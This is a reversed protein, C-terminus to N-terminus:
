RAANVIFGKGDGVIEVQEVDRLPISRIGPDLRHSPAGGTDAWLVWRPKVENLMQVDAQRPSIFVVGSGLTGSIARADGVLDIVTSGYRVKAGIAQTGDRNPARAEFSLTLNPELEIRTGMPVTMVQRANAQAAQTWEALMDSPEDEGDPQIATDVRLSQILRLSDGRTLDNRHPLILWEVTRDWLPMARGMIPLLNGAGAFVIQKGSPTQIFAAGGTFTIHLKGDPRQFWWVAGIVLGILVFFVTITAGMRSKVAGALALRNKTEAAQSAFMMMALLLAYYCSVLATSVNYIPVAASSLSGMGEVVRLTATLLAYVPLAVISGIAPLAVGVAAAIGGLVMIPPQLPLILTNAPLAVLSLQNFYALLLPLTTIQAALTVLVVAVAAHMLMRPRENTMRADFFSRTRTSFRDAYLVLGLTAMFSLQFGIDFLTLPDVILIIFAAACLTNLTFGKRWFFLGTLAIVAMVAARVVSSSAGVFIMYFLITPIVVLAVLRRNLLAGLTAVVLAIVISVNFGSIAV